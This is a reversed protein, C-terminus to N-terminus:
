NPSIQDAIWDAGFYGAAGFIVAGVAGSILAGPGTEIGFLAGVAFGIKGGAIAGGWGGVQRITEASLPRASGEEISRRAAQTLEVATLVVGLVMLVRGAQGVVRARAYSSELNRLEQVLEPRTMRGARFEAWLDEASRVYGPSM